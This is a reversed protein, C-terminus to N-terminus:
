GILSHIHTIRDRITPQIALMHNILRNPNISFTNLSLCLPHHNNINPSKSFMELTNDFGITTSLIKSAGLDSDYIRRKSVILIYIPLICLVLLMSVFINLINTLFIYKRKYLYYVLIELTLVPIAFYLSLYSSLRIDNSSIMHIQQALIYRLGEDNLNNVIESSIIIYSSNKDFGFSYVFFQSSKTIIIKPTKIGIDFSIKEIHNLINENTIKDDCLINIIYKIIINKYHESYLLAVAIVSGILGFWLNIDFYSCILLSILSLEIFFLVFVIYAKIDNVLIYNKNLYYKNM